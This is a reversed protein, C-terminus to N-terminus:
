ISAKSTVNSGVISRGPHWDRTWDGDFHLSEDKEIAKEKWIMRGSALKEGIQRKVKRAYAPFDVHDGALL